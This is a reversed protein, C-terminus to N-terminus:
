GPLRGPGFIAGLWCRSSRTSSTRRPSRRSAHRRLDHPLRAREDLEARHVSRARAPRRSRRRRARAVEISAAVDEVFGQMIDSWVQRAAPAPPWRMPAPSRRRGPPCSLDRLGRHYGTAAIGEPDEAFTELADGRGTRAEEVMRDLLTLLVAEKSPFYFYFTPRSIGAGRALDDVSIESFPLEEMLREATELIAREREDGTARRVRRGRASLPTSAAPTAMPRGIMCVTDVTISTM